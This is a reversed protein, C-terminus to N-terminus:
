DGLVAALKYEGKRDAGQVQSILHFAPVVVISHVKDDAQNMLM